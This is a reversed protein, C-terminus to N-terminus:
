RGLTIWLPAHDSGDRAEPADDIDAEAVYPVLSDSVLAFDVRAADLRGTRARPNFWTYKRAEPHLARFADVLGLAPIFRDNFAARATAHPEETRLRPWTDLRTRSVNWDGIMVLQLGAASLAAAESALQEIFRRKYAHRDGDFRGLEHSWYPRSTGNVAYVNVVALHMSDIRSVVVRGERDWDFTLPAPDFDTRAWTAVGYARGGHWTANRMDHNLAYDCHYGPLASRMREVLVRDRPRVRVEQLCLVDPTRLGDLVDALSTAADAALYPVLSEINWSCIRLM